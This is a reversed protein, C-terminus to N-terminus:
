FLTMGREGVPYRRSIRSRGDNYLCSIGSRPGAHRYQSHFIKVFARKPCGLTNVQYKLISSLNIVEFVDNQFSQRSYLLVM